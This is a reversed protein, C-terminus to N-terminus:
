FFTSCHVMASENVFVVELGIGEDEGSCDIAFPYLGNFEFEFGNFDDLATVDTVGSSLVLVLDKSEDM